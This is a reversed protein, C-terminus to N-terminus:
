VPSLGNRMWTNWCVMFGYQRNFCKKELFNGDSDFRCFETVYSAWVNSGSVKFTLVLNRIEGPGEGKQLFSKEFRGKPNFKYIRSARRDLLFLNNKSDKAVDNFFASTEPNIKSSDIERLLELETTVVGKTPASTNYIHMIGDIIKTHLHTKNALATGGAEQNKNGCSVSFLVVVGLLVMLIFKV